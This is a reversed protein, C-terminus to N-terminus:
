RFCTVILLFLNSFSGLSFIWLQSRWWNNNNNANEFLFLISCADRLPFVIFAKLFKLQIGQFSSIM